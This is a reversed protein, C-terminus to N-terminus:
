KVVLGAGLLIVAVGTWRTWSVHEHFVFIAIVLTVVYALSQLPYLLSIPFKSLLYIWVVTAIVYLIIGGIVWPTFMTLLVSKLDSLKRNALGFKWMTQGGVLLIINVFVLAYKM